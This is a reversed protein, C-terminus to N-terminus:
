PFNPALEVVETVMKGQQESIFLNSVVGLKPPVTRNTTFLRQRRRSFLIITVRIQEKERPKTGDDMFFIVHKAQLNYNKPIQNCCM